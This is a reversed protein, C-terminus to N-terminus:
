SLIREAVTNYLLIGKNTLKFREGRRSVLKDEVLGKLRGLLQEDIIMDTRKRLQELSFGSLLRLYLMMTEEARQYRNLREQGYRRITNSQVQQLYDNINKSLRFRSGQLYSFAAAGLGLYEENRWYIQNHRSERGPQAFSSIEYHCYGAAHLQKCGATYMKVQEQEGPLSLTKKMTYLPTGKELVLDYFSVHQPKLQVARFLDESWERFTQGPLGYMLDISVNDFGAKRVLAFAQYAERVTHVRGLIKLYHDQFSQVGLSIRNIGSKRYSTLTRLSATAPNMELTIEAGASINFDRRLAQMIKGIQIGSLLSPTGGGFYISTVSYGQSLRSQRASDRELATCYREIERASGDAQSVFDCYLCKRICFPIHIYIGLPNM